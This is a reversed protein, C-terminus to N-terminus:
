EYITIETKTIRYFFDQAFVYNKFGLNSHTTLDRLNVVFAIRLGMQFVLIHDKAVVHDYTLSFTLLKVQQENMLANSTIVYCRNQWAYMAKCRQPAFAFGLLSNVGTLDCICLCDGLNQLALSFQERWILVARLITTDYYYLQDDTGIYYLIGRCVQVCSAEPLEHLANTNTNWIRSTSESMIHVWDDKLSTLSHFSSDLRIDTFKGNRMLIYDYYMGVRYRTYVDDGVIGVVSEAPGLDIRRSPKIKFPVYSVIIHILDLPLDLAHKIVQFRYGVDLCKM